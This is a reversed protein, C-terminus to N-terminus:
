INTLHKENKCWEEYVSLAWNRKGWGIVKFYTCVDHQFDLTSINCVDFRNKFQFSQQWELISQTYDEVFNGKSNIAARAEDIVKKRHIKEFREAFSVIKEESSCIIQIVDDSNLLYDTDHTIITNTLNNYYRNKQENTYNFFKKMKSRHKKIRYDNITSYGKKSGPRHLLANKDIMGLILDGCMGGRFLIIRKNDM